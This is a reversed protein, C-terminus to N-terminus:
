LNAEAPHSWTGRRTRLVKNKVFMCVYTARLSCACGDLAAMANIHPAGGHAELRGRQLEFNAEEVGEAHGDGKRLKRDCAHLSQVHSSSLLLATCGM